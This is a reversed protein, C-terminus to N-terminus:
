PATPVLSAAVASAAVSKGHGHDLNVFQKTSPIYGVINFKGIPEQKAAKFALRTAAFGKGDTANRAWQGEATFFKLSEADEIIIKM